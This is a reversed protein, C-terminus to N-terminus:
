HAQRNRRRKIKIVMIIDEDNDPSCETGGEKSEVVNSHKEEHGQAKKMEEQLIEFGHGSKDFTRAM